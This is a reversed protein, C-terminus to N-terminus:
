WRIAAGAVGGPRVRSEIVYTRTIDGDRLDVRAGPTVDVQAQLFLALPGALAVEGRVVPRVALRVVTQVPGLQFGVTDGNQRPTVQILDPGIDAEISLWWREAWSREWGIGVSASWIVVSADAPFNAPAFVAAVRAVSIGIAPSGGLIPRGLAWSSALTVGPLLPLDSGGGTAVYGSRLDFRRRPPVPPSPPPELAASRSTTVNPTSSIPTASGEPALLASRIIQAITECTAEDLSTAVVMRVAPAAGTTPLRITVTASDRIDVVAQRRRTGPARDVVEDVPSRRWEVVMHDLGLLTQVAREMRWSDAREGIVAVTVPVSEGSAPSADVQALGVICPALVSLASTIASLRARSSVVATM